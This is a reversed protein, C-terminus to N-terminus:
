TYAKLALKKEETKIIFPRHDFRCEAHPLLHLDKKELFSQFRIGVKRKKQMTIIKLFLFPVGLFFLLM